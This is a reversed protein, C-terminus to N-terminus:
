RTVQLYRRLSDDLHQALNPRAALIARQNPADRRMFWKLYAALPTRGAFSNRCVRWDRSTACLWNGTSGRYIVPRLYSPLLVPLGARYAQWRETHCAVRAAAKSRLYCSVGAPAECVPCAISRVNTRSIM